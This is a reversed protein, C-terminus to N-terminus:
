LIRFVDRTEGALSERGFPIRYLLQVLVVDVGVLV